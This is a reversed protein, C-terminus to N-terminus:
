SESALYPVIQVYFYITAIPLIFYSDSNMSMSLLFLFGYKGWNSLFNSPTQKVEGEGDGLCLSWSYLQSVVFYIKVLVCVCACICLCSMCVHFCLGECLRAYSKCAYVYTCGCPLCACAPTYTHVCMYLPVCIHLRCVWVCSYVLTCTSVCACVYMWMPTYACVYGWVHARIYM